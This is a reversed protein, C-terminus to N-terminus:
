LFSLLKETIPKTLEPTLLKNQIGFVGHKNDERDSGHNDSWFTNMGGIRKVLDVLYQVQEPTAKANIEYNKMGLESLIPLIQNHFYEARAVPDTNIGHKKYVKNFSFNPHAVSLIIDESKAIHVLDSIEPEYPAVIVNGINLYSGGDQLCERIFGEHNHIKWGTLDDLIILSSDRKDGDLLFQSLHANSVAIERYGQSKVWSFFEGENIDFGHSQLKKIQERVKTTKWILVADIRNKINQSIERSYCTVHFSCDLERSHASIETAWIAKIGLERAPLVFNPSYCDHDTM